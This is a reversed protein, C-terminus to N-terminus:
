PPYHYRERKATKLANPLIKATKKEQGAEAYRGAIGVLVPAKNYDDKITKAVLLACSLTKM